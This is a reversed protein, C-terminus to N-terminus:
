EQSFYKQDIAVATILAIDEPMQEQIDVTFRDSLTNEKSVTFVERGEQDRCQFDWASFGGQANYKKNGMYLTFHKILSMLPFEILAVAKKENDFVKFRTKLLNSTVKKFALGQGLGERMEWEPPFAFKGKIVYAIEANKSQSIIYDDNLEFTKQTIKFTKM